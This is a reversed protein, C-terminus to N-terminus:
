SRQIVHVLQTPPARDNDNQPSFNLWFLLAPMADKWAIADRSVAPRKEQRKNRSPPSAAWHIGSLIFGQMALHLPVDKSREFANSKGHTHDM